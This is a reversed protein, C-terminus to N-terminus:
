GTMSVRVPWLANWTGNADFGPLRIANEFWEGEKNYPLGRALMEPLEIRAEGNPIANNAALVLRNAEKVKELIAVIGKALDPYTQLASVAGDRAERASAREQLLAIAAETRVAEFDLESAAKLAQAVADGAISPDVAAQRTDAAKRRLDSLLAGGTAIVANVASASLGETMGESYITNASHKM